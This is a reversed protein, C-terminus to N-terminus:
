DVARGAVEEGADAERENEGGNALTSCRCAPPRRGRHVGPARGLPASSLVNTLDMWYQLRAPTLDWTMHFHNAPAYQKYEGMRRTSRCSSPTRGPRRQDPRASPRRGAERAARRHHGRGLSLSFMGTLASYALRGAIGEIGGPSSSPSALQRRRPLLGPRGAAHQRRAMIEEVSAGPQGAWDFRRAAPTTATSSARRRGSSTAPAAHARAERGAGPDGVAGLGQPLGHVAAPQRRHALHLLADDAPGARRGRHRLAAAGQPRQPRLHLQLLSEMADAVPLPIGRRDSGWELQSM